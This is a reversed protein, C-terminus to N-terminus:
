VNTAGGISENTATSGEEPLGAPGGHAPSGPFNVLYDEGWDCMEETRLTSCKFASSMDMVMDHWKPYKYFTTIVVASNDSVEWVRIRPRLPAKGEWPQGDATYAAALHGNPLLAVGLRLGATARNNPSRRRRGPCLRAVLQTAASWVFITSDDCGAAFGGSPLAIITEVGMCKVPLRLKVAAKGTHLDWVCVKGDDCGSVLRGDRLVALGRVDVDLRHGELLMSCREARLDWVRVSGDTASSYLTGGPVSILAIVEGAWGGLREERLTAVVAGSVVDFVRINGSVYGIATRGEGVSKWTTARDVVDPINGDEDSEAGSVFFSPWDRLNREPYVRRDVGGAAGLLRACAAYGAGLAIFMATEAYSNHANVACTVALLALIGAMDGRAAAAHLPTDVGFVAAASAM